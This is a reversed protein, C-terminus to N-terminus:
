LVHSSPGTTHHGRPHVTRCSLAVVDSPFPIRYSGVQRYSRDELTVWSRSVDDTLSLSPTVHSARVVGKECCEVLGGFKFGMWDRACKRKYDGLEAEERVIEGDMARMDDRLRNLTDTQPGLNKHEPSMKNLKKEAAEASAGVRRRRRRLEDLAEERTRVSKMSDRVAHHLSSYTSLATAFHALMTSSATLIDQSVTMLAGKVDRHPRVSLDEGEGQGWVRLADGAKALDVRLKQLRSAFCLRM